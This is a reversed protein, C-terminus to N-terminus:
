GPSFVKGKLGPSQGMMALARLSEPRNGLAYNCGNGQGHGSWYLVGAIERNATVYAEMQRIFGAQVGPSTYPVSAWESIFVPLGGHGHAFGLVSGFLEAPITVHNGQAVLNSGPMAQRCTSTNYGDAAVVDVESPGPWFSTARGNMFAYHTLIWVWHLRGGDNWDLHASEALARIHDWASVFQAPSGLGQHTPPNNAEHEFCIYIADLHYRWAAQNVARLFASIVRDFQGSVISTYSPGAGPTADLSVLLTSGAAMVQRNAPKPFRQGIRYYARVIALKRGLQGEEQALGLTGGFLAGHTVGSRIGAGAPESAPNVLGYRGSAGQGRPVAQSLTGSGAGCGAAAAIVVALALIRAWASWAGHCRARPTDHKMAAFTLRTRASGEPDQRPLAYVNASSRILWRRGIAPGTGRLSM